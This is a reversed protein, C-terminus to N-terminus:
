SFWANAWPQRKPESEYIMWGDRGSAVEAMPLQLVVQSVPVGAISIDVVAAMLVTDDTKPAATRLITESTARVAM